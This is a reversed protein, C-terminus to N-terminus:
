KAHFPGGRWRIVLPESAREGHRDDEPREDAPQEGAEDAEDAARQRLAAELLAIRRRLEATEDFRWRDAAWRVNDPHRWEGYIAQATAREERWLRRERAYDTERM